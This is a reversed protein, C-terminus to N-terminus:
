PVRAAYATLALVEDASLESWIEGDTRRLTWVIRGDLPRPVVRHGDQRLRAMEMISVQLIPAIGDCTVMLVHEPRLALYRAVRAAAELWNPVASM